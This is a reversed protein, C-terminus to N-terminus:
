DEGPLPRRRGILRFAFPAFVVILFIRVIHHIAVFAADAGLAIAILSMEALGGPAFALVVPGTPLGSSVHLGLAFAVTIGVLIATVGLSALLTRGILRLPTGAFRAGLATGVAVQACAVIEAPPKAATVGALHVLASIIMPGVVAAAPVRLWRAVVYGILGSCGLIVYDYAPLEALAPGIAPRNGLDLGGGLTFAFPISLVVLMIRTAHILSIVRGDGGMETGVLVMESLGGPMASFYATVPDYNCFLRFYGMGALGCTAVYFAIALLSPTWSGASALIEPTFGSGLMVGLVAVMMTRLPAAMAIPAGGLSAISTALMAGIMWALPLQLSHAFWGGLGGLALALCIASLRSWTPLRPRRPVTPRTM